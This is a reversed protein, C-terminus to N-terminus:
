KHRFIEQNAIRAVWIIWLIDVLILLRNVYGVVAVVGDPLTEPIPADPGMPVGAQAFGNMMVIMAVVMAVVMVWTGHALWLLPKKHQIWPSKRTLHYTLLLAAVPVTPIGLLGAVGHGTPQSVDFWAALSAGIGSIFLLVNGTKAGPKDIRKWLSLSLLISGLGWSVFFISLLWKFDGLAYESVMRWSPDFEPSVFHLVLLCLLAITAFAISAKALTTNQSQM